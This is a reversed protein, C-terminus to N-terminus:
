IKAKWTICRAALEVPKLAIYAADALWPSRIRAAVRPGVRNYFSRFCRHSRPSKERWLNEFEWLTILQCNAQRQEGRRGIEYFPGVFKRHGRGAATVVFCGDPKTDPLSQFTKQSWLWSGLWFPVTGVAAVLYTLFDFHGARMLFATRITYWVAIYFPVLMPISTAAEHDLCTLGFVFCVWAVIAGIFIAAATLRSKSVDMRLVEITYLAVTAWLVLPSLALKGVIFCDLWGFRCAGKWEPVMVSSLFFFFLPLVVVLFSLAMGPILWLWSKKKIGMPIALVYLILLLIAWPILFGYTRMM